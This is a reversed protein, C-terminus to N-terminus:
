HTWREAALLRTKIVSCVMWSTHWTMSSNGKKLTRGSTHTICHPWCWCCRLLSLGVLWLYAHTLVGSQNTSTLAIINAICVHLEGVTRCKRWLACAQSVVTQWQDMSNMSKKLNISVYTNEMSEFQWIFKKVIYKIITCQSVLNALKILYNWEICFTTPNLKIYFLKFKAKM